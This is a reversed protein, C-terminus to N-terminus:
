AVGGPFGNSWNLYNYTLGGASVNLPPRRWVNHVIQGALTTRQPAIGAM